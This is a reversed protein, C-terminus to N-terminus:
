TTVCTEAFLQAVVDAFEHGTPGKMLQAMPIRIRLRREIVDRMEATVSSDLGADTLPRNMDIQDAPIALARSAVAQIFTAVKASRVVPDCAMLQDRTVDDDRLLRRSASQGAGPPPTEGRPPTPGPAPKAARIAPKGAAAASPAAVLLPVADKPVLAVARHGRVNELLRRLAAASSQIEASAAFVVAADAPGASAAAIHVPRPLADVRATGRDRREIVVVARAAGLRSALDHMQRLRQHFAPVDQPSSPDRPWGVGIVTGIEAGSQRVQALVADLRSGDLSWDAAHGVAAPVAHVLVADSSHRALAASKFQEAHHAPALLLIGERNAAPQAGPTLGRAAALPRLREVYRTTGRFAVQHEPRASLEHRLMAIDRAAPKPDLDIMSCPVGLFEAQWRAASWRFMSGADDAVTESGIARAGRTIVWLRTSADARDALVDRVRTLGACLSSYRGPDEAQGGERDCAFIVGRLPARELALHQAVVSAITSEDSPTFSFAGDGRDEFRDSEQLLLCADGRERITAHLREAVTSAISGYVIWLGRSLAGRAASAMEEDFAWELAATTEEVEAAEAQRTAYRANVAGALYQRKCEQRRIKGSSTKPVDRPDVLVLDHIAIEHEERVAARAAQALVEPALRKRRDIAHVVVLAEGADTDITFAAGGVPSFGEHSALVTHEIDQPYYNRGRVILLDKIRGTIFLRGRDIFGLDGTRLFTRDYGPLTARFIESTLEPQQWYGATVSPGSIWVEGVHGDDVPLL